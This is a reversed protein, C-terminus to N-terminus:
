RRPVNARLWFELSPVRIVEVSRLMLMWFEADSRDLYLNAIAPSVWVTHEDFIGVPQGTLRKERRVPAVPHYDALTLIHGPPGM